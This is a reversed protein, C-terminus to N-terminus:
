ADRFKEILIGKLIKRTKVSGYRQAMKIIANQDMNTLRERALKLIYPVDEAILDLNNMLDVFLFETTIQRPYKSKIKFDFACGNFLFVGKRKHNYVWVTNYLQTLGLGLMNYDNPSVILFDDDNLFRAVIEDDGPPIAGFKTNKPAHYLGQALKVLSGEAVLQALHRDIASSYYELDSRRYVGGPKIHALLAKM